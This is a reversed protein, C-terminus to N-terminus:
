LRATPVKKRKPEEPSNGGRPQSRSATRATGLAKKELRILLIKKNLLYRLDSTIM